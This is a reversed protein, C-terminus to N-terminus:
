LSSITLFYGDLDRLSFEMTMTNPNHHPQEELIADLQRARSLCADFDSVRLFLLLGNGDGDPASEKLTAHEHAGWRHLNLLVTGDDDLLQGFHDHAPDTARSGLLHQYWRFSARVDRVAIITWMRRM